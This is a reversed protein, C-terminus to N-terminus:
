IEISKFGRDEGILQDLSWAAWVAVVKLKGGFDWGCFVLLSFALVM